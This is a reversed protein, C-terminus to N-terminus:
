FFFVEAFKQEIECLAFFGFCFLQWFVIKIRQSPWSRTLLITAPFLFILESSARSKSDATRWKVVDQLPGELRSKPCKSTGGCGRVAM